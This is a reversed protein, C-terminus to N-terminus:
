KVDGGIQQNIRQAYERRKKKFEEFDQEEKKKEYEKKDEAFLDPFFDWLQKKYDDELQSSDALLEVMEQKIQFSLVQNFVLQQKIENRKVREYSNIMDMVEQVSMEFFSFPSIGCDLAIPYLDNIYGTM